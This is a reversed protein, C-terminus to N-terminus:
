LGASIRPKEKTTKCLNRRPVHGKTCRVEPMEALIGLVRMMMFRSAAHGWYCGTRFRNQTDVVCWVDQLHQVHEQSRHSIARNGRRGAAFGQFKRVLDREVGDNEIVFHGLEISELDSLDELGRM